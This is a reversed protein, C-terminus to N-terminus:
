VGLNLHLTRRNLYSSPQYDTFFVRSSSYADKLEMIMDFNESNVDWVFLSNKSTEIRSEIPALKERLQGLEARNTPLASWPHIHLLLHPTIQTIMNIDQAFHEKAGDLYNTQPDLLV